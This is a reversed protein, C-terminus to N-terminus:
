NMIKFERAKNLVEAEDITIVGRDKMLVKGDVIVDNVDGSNVCYVLHSYPNHIPLLHPKNLDITIIDAKKGVELSGVKKDLGLVKAGNITAMKVVEKASILTPELNSVKHLMACAEMDSFLDLTNNSAASDTGLGVFIGKELMKPLVAIGSALKMNSLPCHSVKVGREKYIDLDKDSLWVSHAAITKESLLGIKDLYEVPSLGTKEKCDDVEKKTESIHIHVLLNHKQSIEAVRRLIKEDCTYVAHPALAIKVLDSNKFKELQSITKAFIEDVNKASPTPFNLATEGIVARMGIKEALEGTEEEFFYMDNFCTIGAKIMELCALETAQKVFNPKVYKAEAPWIHKELWDQLPLDDALGRFYSMASHTHTNIMGPMVIGFGVDITEKATFEKEIEKASGVKKITNGMIAVAGDEIIQMKDDIPLVYEGKIILDCDM